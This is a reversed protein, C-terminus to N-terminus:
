HEPKPVVAGPTAVDDEGLLQTVDSPVDTAGAFSAGGIKAGAFKARTLTGERFNANQL